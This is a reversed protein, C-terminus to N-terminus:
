EHTAQRESISDSSEECNQIPCRSENCDDRLRDLETRLKANFESNREKRHNSVVEWISFVLGLLWFFLGLSGYIDGGIM